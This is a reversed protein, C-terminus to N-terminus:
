YCPQNATQLISAKIQDAFSNASHDMGNDLRSNRFNAQDMEASLRQKILCRLLHLPRVSLRGSSLHPGTQTQSLRSGSTLRIHMCKDMFGLSHSVGEASAKVDKCGNM